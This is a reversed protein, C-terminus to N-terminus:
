VVKGAIREDEERHIRMAAAGARDVDGIEFARRALRLRIRLIEADQKEGDVRLFCRGRQGFQALPLRNRETPRHPPGIGGIDFGQRVRDPELEAAVALLEHVWVHSKEDIATEGNGIPDVPAAKGRRLDLAAQARGSPFIEPDPSVGDTKVSHHQEEKRGEDDRQEM